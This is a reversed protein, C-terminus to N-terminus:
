AGAARAASLLKAALARVEAPTLPDKEIWVSVTVPGPVGDEHDVRNLSCVDDLDGQHLIPRWMRGDPALEHSTHHCWAPCNLGTVVAVTLEDGTM